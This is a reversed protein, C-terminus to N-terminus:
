PIVTSVVQEGLKKGLNVGLSETVKQRIAKGLAMDGLASDVLGQQMLKMFEDGFINSSGGGGGFAQLLQGVLPDKLLGVINAAGTGGSTRPTASGLAPPAQAQKAQAENIMKGVSNRVAADFNRYIAELMTASQANYQQLDSVYKLIATLPIGVSEATKLMNADLKAFDIQLVPPKPFTIEPEVKTTSNEPKTEAAPQVNQNPNSSLIEVDKV